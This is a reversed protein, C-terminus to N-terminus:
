AFGVGAKLVSGGLYRLMDLYHWSSKDIIKETDPDRVCNNLQDITPVCNESIKLRGSAFLRNTADIGGEVDATRPERIKVGASRFDLRQQRESKAGGYGAIIRAEKPFHKKIMGARESTTGEPLMEDHKLYFIKSEPHYVFLGFAHNVAGFDHAHYYVVNETPIAEEPVLCSENFAHYVMGSRQVDWDGHRLRKFDVSDLQHLSAEYDGRGDRWLYPNDELRSRIFRRGVAFRDAQTSEVDEGDIRRFFRVRSEVDSDIFRRKIFYHNPGGPNFTSRIYLDIEPNSSRNRSFLFLYQKPTFEQLEDFGIWAYQLGSHDYANKEHELHSFRISNNHYDPFRWTYEQKNYIGGLLPYVTQSLEILGDAGSLEKYTRRFMIARYGPKGLQGLADLILSFSKAGGAQGGFGVERVGCKLFIEQPSEKIPEIKTIPQRATQPEDNGGYTIELRGPEKTM